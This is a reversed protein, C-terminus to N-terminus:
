IFIISEDLLSINKVVVNKIKKDKNSMKIVSSSESKLNSNVLKKFSESNSKGNSKIIKSNNLIKSSSLNLKSQNNKVSSPSKIPQNNKNISKSTEKKIAKTSKNNLKNPKSKKTIFNKLSNISKEVVRIVALPLLTTITSNKYIEELELIKEACVKLKTTFNKEENTNINITFNNNNINVTDVRSENYTKVGYSDLVVNGESELNLLKEESKINIKEELFSTLKLFLQKKNLLDISINSKIMEIQNNVKEILSNVEEQLKIQDDNIM